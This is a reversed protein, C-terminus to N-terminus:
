KGQNLLDAVRKPDCPLQMVDRELSDSMFYLTIPVNSVTHGEIPSSILIIPSPNELEEIHMRLNQVANWQNQMELPMESDNIINQEALELCIKLATILEM